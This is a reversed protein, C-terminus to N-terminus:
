YVCRKLPKYYRRCLKKILKNIELNGIKRKKLVKQFKLNTFIPWYLPTEDLRSSSCRRHHWTIRESLRKRKAM